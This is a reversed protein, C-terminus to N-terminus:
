LQRRQLVPANQLIEAAHHMYYHLILADQVESPSDSNDYYVADPPRVLPAVKRNRDRDDLEAIKPILTRPDPCAKKEAESMVKYMRRARVELSASVFFKWRADPFVVSGIDRGEMVLTRSLALQRQKETLLQRVEPLIAIRSALEVVPYQDLEATWDEGNVLTLFRRGEQPFSFDLPRAAELVAPAKEPSIKARRVALAVARYMHGTNVYTAGSLLALERAITSKGAYSVGDIAIVDSTM